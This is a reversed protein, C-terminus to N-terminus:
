SKVRAPGIASAVEKIDRVAAQRKKPDDCRLDDLINALESKKKSSNM